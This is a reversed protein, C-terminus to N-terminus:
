KTFGIIAAKSAAYATRTASGTVAFNSSTNIIAGKQRQKMIPIAAQSCLFTAKLNVDLVERWEHLPFDQILGAHLTGGQLNVLLDIRGHLSSIKTFAEQVQSKKTLDLAVFEGSQDQRELLEMVEQGAAGNKDLIVPFFGGKALRLVVARGIGGSGGSVIAIRKESSNDM